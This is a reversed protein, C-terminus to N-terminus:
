SSNLSHLITHLELLLLEAVVFGVPTPKQLFPLFYNYPQNLSSTVFIYWNVLNNINHNHTYIEPISHKGKKRMIIKIIMRLNFCYHKM